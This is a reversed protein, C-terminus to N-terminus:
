LLEWCVSTADYWTSFIELFDGYLNLAPQLRGGHRDDRRINFM